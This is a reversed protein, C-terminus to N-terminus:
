RNVESITLIMERNRENVDVVSLIEFYRDSYSIRMKPKIGPTYRIRITGTNKSQQQDETDSENGTSFSVNAFCNCFTSWEGDTGWGPSGSKTQIMIYKDLRGVNL